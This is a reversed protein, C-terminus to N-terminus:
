EGIAPIIDAKDEQIDINGEHIQFSALRPPKVVIGPRNSYTQALLRPLPSEVLESLKLHLDYDGIYAAQFHRVEESTVALFDGSGKLLQAHDLSRGIIRKTAAIDATQGIIRTTIGARYTSGLFPHDIRDIAMVLHIGAQDGYQLLRLLDSRSEHDVGELYALINDVLVIVHPVRVRNRRRYTAEESLFHIITACSDPDLSPDTLMHPFYALPLLPSRNAANENHTPDLIQLQCGAQRNTLALGAAITRLLTTKGSGPGGAILVHSVNPMGPCPIFPLLMPTNDETLGIPAALPPLYSATALLKLLPVPADDPQPLRLQWRGDDQILAMNSVGLATMLDDKLNRALELGASLRTQLDFSVVHPRISGGTVAAQIQHHTLVRNIQQSQVNLQHRLSAVSSSEEEMYLEVNKPM